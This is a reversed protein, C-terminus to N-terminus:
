SKENRFYKKKITDGKKICYVGILLCLVLLCLVSMFGDWCELM